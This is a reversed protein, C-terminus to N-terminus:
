VNVEELPIVVVEDLKDGIKELHIFQGQKDFGDLVSQEIGNDL